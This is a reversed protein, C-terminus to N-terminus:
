RSTGQEAESLDDGTIAIVTSLPIEFFSRPPSGACADRTIRRVAALGIASVLDTSDVRERPCVGSLM